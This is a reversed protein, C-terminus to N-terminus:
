RNFLNGRGYASRGFRSTMSSIRSESLVNTRKARTDNQSLAVYAEAVQEAGFRYLIDSGITNTQFIRGARATIYNRALQPITEFAFFRTLDVYVTTGAPFTTSRADCDYMTGAREILRYNHDAGEIQLTEAPVAISGNADAMLPFGYERNFWWGKAQVERNVNHLTLRAIAADKNGATDLANVPANGISLLLCNVADLETMPALNMPYTAM